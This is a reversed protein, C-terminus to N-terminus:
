TPWEAALRKRDGGAGCIDFLSSMRVSSKTNVDEQKSTVQYEGPQGSAKMTKSKDTVENEM